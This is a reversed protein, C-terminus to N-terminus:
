KNLATSLNAIMSTNKYGRPSKGKVSFKDYAGPKKLANDFTHLNEHQVSLKNAM